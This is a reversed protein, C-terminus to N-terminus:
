SSFFGFLWINLCYSLVFFNVNEFPSLKVVKSNCDYKLLSLMVRTKDEEHQLVLLVLNM